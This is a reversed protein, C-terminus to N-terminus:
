LFLVARCTNMGKKTGDTAVFVTDLMLKKLLIRVHRAAETMSPLERGRVQLHDYRRLHVALYPGGKAKRSQKKSFYFM